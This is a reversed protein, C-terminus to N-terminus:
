RVDSWRRWWVPLYLWRRHQLGQDNVCYVYRYPSVNIWSTCYYQVTSTSDYDIMLEDCVLSFYCVYLGGAGGAGPTAVHWKITALCAPFSAGQGSGVFTTDNPVVNNALFGNSGNAGGSGGFSGNGLYYKLISLAGM